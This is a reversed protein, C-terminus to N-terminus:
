KFNIKVENLENLKVLLVKKRENQLLRLRFGLELFFYKLVVKSLLYKVIM